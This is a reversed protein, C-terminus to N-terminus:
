FTKGHDGIEVTDSREFDADCRSEKSRMGLAHCEQARSGQRKSGGEDGITDPVSSMLGGDETDIPNVFADTLGLSNTAFKAVVLVNMEFNCVDTFSGRIEGRVIDDVANSQYSGRLLLLLVQKQADGPAHSWTCNENASTGERQLSQSIRYTLM